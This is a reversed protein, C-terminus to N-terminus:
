VVSKRDAAFAARSAEGVATHAAQAQEFLARAGADDGARGTRIARRELLDGVLAPDEPLEEGAGTRAAVQDWLATATPHGARRAARARAVLGALPEVGPATAAAVPAAATGPAATPLPTSRVGLPLAEVLPAGAIRARLQDSIHTNGNRADFRGAIGTAEAHLLASLEAVTRPAGQYPVAPRDGHGLETLRRLLVLVGGAFELRVGPSVVREVYGAHEALIELGRPENGTLACFEIHEGVARMLSENGRTMRYGRLHYARAQDHRGLRLLPLLARALVRHPEERCVQRGELVPEWVEIAQEDRGQLARHRGQTHIECAHCDSMADREAARWAEIARDARATDGIADALHFEAQHVARESYGALRYRRGMDELWRTATAVPIDPSSVILGAVWKFRWFLGHTDSRGFAAPDRDYEQLLRAFPVVLKAREASYEYAEILVALSTRFLGRDGSAEAATCLAEAHANRAAGYPSQENEELGQYIERISLSTM